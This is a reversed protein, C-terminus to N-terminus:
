RLPRLIAEVVQPYARAFLEDRGPRPTMFDHLAGLGQLEIREPAAGHARWIEALEDVLDNDCTTEDPNTVLAVSPTRPPNNRADEFIAHALIYIEKIASLPYRPYGDSIGHRKRKIPNWWLFIPPAHRLLRPAIRNLKQPLWRVGFFPAICVARAVEERQAVYAALLGGLSFGAVTVPGGLSSGERLALKVAAILEAVEMQELARTMRDLYGHRPLRPVLVNHGREHLLPAVGDFQAPTATLGHLLVVTPAHPGHVFRRAENSPDIHKPDDLNVSRGERVPVGPSYNGTHFLCEASERTYLREFAM